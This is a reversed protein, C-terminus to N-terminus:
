GDCSERRAVVAPVEDVTSVEGSLNQDNLIPALSAGREPPQNGGGDYVAGVVTPLGPSSRM